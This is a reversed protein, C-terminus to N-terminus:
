SIMRFDLIKMGVGLHWKGIHATNYGLGKLRSALTTHSKDLGGVDDSFFVGPWIGSTAPYLGTLLASRSPSCVPSASYFNTLVKSKSYLNDLNPAHSSPHGFRPLDGYGLDDALILLVNPRQSAALLPM